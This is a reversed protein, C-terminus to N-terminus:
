LEHSLKTSAIRRFAGIIGLKSVAAAQETHTLYPLLDLRRQDYLQHCSLCLPVVDESMVIRQWGEDLLERILDTPAEAWLEALQPDYQRGIM